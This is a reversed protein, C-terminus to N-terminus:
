HLLDDDRAASSSLGERHDHETHPKMLTKLQFSVEKLTTLIDLQVTAFKELQSPQKSLKELLDSQVFLLENVYVSSCISVKDKNQTFEGIYMLQNNERVIQPLNAVGADKVKCIDGKLLTQTKKRSM